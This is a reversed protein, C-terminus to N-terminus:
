NKLIWFMCNILAFTLFVGGIFYIGETAGNADSIMDFLILSNVFFSLFVIIYSFSWSTRPIDQRLRQTIDFRQDADMNDDRELTQLEIEHSSDISLEEWAHDRRTQMKRVFYEVAIKFFIIFSLLPYHIGYCLLLSFDFIIDAMFYRGEFIAVPRNSDRRNFIERMFTECLYVMPMLSYYYIWLPLQTILFQSSCLNFYLFPLSFSTHRHCIKSDSGREWWNCEAEGILQHIESKSSILEEFCSEDSFLTSIWPTVVSSMLLLVILYEFQRRQSIVNESLSQLYYFIWVVVYRNWIINYIVMIVQILLLKPTSAKTNILSNQLKFYIKNVTFSLIFNLSFVILYFGIVLSYDVRSTLRNVRRMQQSTILDTLPYNFQFGLNLIIWVSAIIGGPLYGRLYLSSVSWEYTNEYMKYAKTYQSIHFFYYCPLLAFIVIVMCLLIRLSFFQLILNVKQSTDSFNYLRFVWGMVTLFTAISGLIFYYCVFRLMRRSESVSFSDPYGRHNSDEQLLNGKVLTVRDIDLSFPVATFSFRNNNLNLTTPGKSETFTM